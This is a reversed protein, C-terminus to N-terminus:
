GDALVENESFSSFPAMVLERGEGGECVIPARYDPFVGPLPPMNGVDSRVERVFDRIAQPGKTISYLNCM